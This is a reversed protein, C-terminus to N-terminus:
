TAASVWVRRVGDVRWEFGGLLRTSAWQHAAAAGHDEEEGLDNIAGAAGGADSAMMGGQEARGNGAVERAESKQPGLKMYCAALAGASTSMM